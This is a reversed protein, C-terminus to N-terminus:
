ITMEPNGLKSTEKARNLMTNKLRPSQSASDKLSSGCESHEAAEV